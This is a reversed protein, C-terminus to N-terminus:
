ADDELLAMLRLSAIERLQGAAVEVETAPDNTLRRGLLDLMEEVSRGAARVLYIRGFTEEYRRNGDALREQLDADGPDLGSQEGHSMTASTGTGTHREGIRPHDALAKELDAGTWSAAQAEGAAAAAAADAYPRGDVVADVWGDLDVCPRVLAAAQAPPLANFDTIGM